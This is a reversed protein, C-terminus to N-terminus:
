FSWHSFRAAWYLVVLRRHWGSLSCGLREAELYAQELAFSNFQPTTWDYNKVAWRAGAGCCAKHRNALRRLSGAMRWNARFRRFGRVIRNFM